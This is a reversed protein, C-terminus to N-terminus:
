RSKHNKKHDDILIATRPARSGLGPDLFFRQKDVAVLLIM